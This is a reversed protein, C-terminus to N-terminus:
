SLMVLCERTRDDFPPNAPPKEALPPIVYSEPFLLAVDTAAAITDILQFSEHVLATAYSYPELLVGSLEKSLGWRGASGLKETTDWLDSAIPEPVSVFSFEPEGARKYALTTFAARHITNRPEYLLTTVDRYYQGNIIEQLETGDTQKLCKRFKKDRFSAHREDIHINYARRAVCAQADMAGALILTLYDFHYMIRDRTNNNQTMYFQEGIADRAELSRICRVLISQGLKLIDDGRAKESAACASFYRWMSPLRHRTLIWYFFGRDLNTRLGPGASYTYIGRSRLFLGVIQAAETPTRPNAEHVWTENRLDLLLPSSTILVDGKVQRHAQALILDELMATVSAKVSKVKQVLREAIKSWQHPFDIGAVLKPEDKSFVTIPIHDTYKDIDGVKIYPSSGPATELAEVEPLHALKHLLDVATAESDPLNILSNTHFTIRLPREGEGRQFPSPLEGINAPYGWLIREIM